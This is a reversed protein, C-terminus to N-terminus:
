RVRRSDRGADARPGHASEGSPDAHRGDRRLKGEGAERRLVAGFLSRAGWSKHFARESTKQPSLLTRGIAAGSTRQM